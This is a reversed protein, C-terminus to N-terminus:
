DDPPHIYDPKLAFYQKLRILVHNPEIGIAVIDDTCVFLYEYYEKKTEKTAAPFWVDPDGRSSENGL